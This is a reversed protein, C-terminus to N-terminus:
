GWIIGLGVMVSNKVGMVCCRCRESCPRGGGVCWVGPEAEVRGCQGGRKGKGEEL